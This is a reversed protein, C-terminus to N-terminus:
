NFHTMKWKFHGNNFDICSWFVLETKLSLSSVFFSCFYPSLDVTNIFMLDKLQSFWYIVSPHSLHSIELRSRFLTYNSQCFRRWCIATSTQKKCRTNSRLLHPKCIFTLCQILASTSCPTIMSTCQMYPGKDNIVCPFTM